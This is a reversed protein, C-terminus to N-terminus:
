SRQFEISTVLLDRLTALEADAFAPERLVEISLSLVAPLEDRTTQLTARVSSAEGGVNLRSQRRSLEDEIEQRSRSTTGRMLMQAALNDIRGTGMLSQEDGLNLRIAAYVADGRSEKPLMVLKVGGPLR